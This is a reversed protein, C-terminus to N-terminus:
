SNHGKAGNDTRCAQLPPLEMEKAGPTPWTGSDCVSTAQDVSVVPLRVLPFRPTSVATGWAGTSTTAAHGKGTETDSAPDHMRKRSPHSM